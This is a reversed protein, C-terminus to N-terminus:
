KFLANFTSNIQSRIEEDLDSVIKSLTARDLGLISLASDRVALQPQREKYTFGMSRAVADSVHTLATLPHGDVPPDHHGGIIAPLPDPLKWRHALAEGVEAHNIGLLDTEVQFMTRGDKHIIDLVMRFLDTFYYGFVMKGIDHVMGSMFPDMEGPPMGKKIEDRAALTRAAVGCAIAHRWFETVEFLPQKHKRFSGIVSLTRVVNVVTRLGVLNIADSVSTIERAFGFASSNSLRLLQATIAVDLEIVSSYDQTTAGPDRSLREVESFVPAMVPLDEIKELERHIHAVRSSAPRAVRPGKAEGEKEGKMGRLKLELQTPDDFPKPLCDAAGIKTAQELDQPSFKSSMLAIPISSAEPNWRIMRTLTLGSTPMYAEMLVFVIRDSYERLAKLADVGEDVWIVDYGWKKFIQLCRLLDTAYLKNRPNKLQDPTFKRDLMLVMPNTSETEPM